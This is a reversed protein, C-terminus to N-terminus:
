QYWGSLQLYCREEDADSQKWWRALSVRVLTDPPLESAAEACGVFRIRLTGTSGGEIDYAIEYYAREDSGCLTLPREPLWYGTSCHPIGGSRTIYASRAGLILRGDYLNRPDGRWLQVRNLLTKRMNLQQGLYHANLVRVDEVHPPTVSMMLRYEVEWVQGVEYPATGPQHDRHATLLRISRNTETLGSVCLGNWM